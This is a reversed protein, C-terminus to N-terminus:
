KGICFSAFIEGLLDDSTFEGTISGLAKQCLRLEEAVLEVNVSESLEKANVLHTNTIELADIHRARVSFNDTNSPTYGSVDIFHKRLKEIGMKTKASIEIVTAEIDLVGLNSVSLERHEVLDLKNIVITFRKGSDLKLSHNSM